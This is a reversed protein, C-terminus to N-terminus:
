GSDDRALEKQANGRSVGDISNGNKMKKACRAVIYYHGILGGAMRLMGNRNGTWEKIFMAIFLKRDYILIM